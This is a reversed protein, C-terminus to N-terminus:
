SAVHGKRVCKFCKIERDQIPWTKSKGKRDMYAEKKAKSPKVKAHMHPKPQAVWERKQNPRWALLSSALNTQFYTIGRKKIQKEVKMAMYIMDEVKVYHQEIDV